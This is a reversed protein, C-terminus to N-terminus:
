LYQDQGDNTSSLNLSSKDGCEIQQGEVLLPGVHHVDQSLGMRSYHGRCEVRSSNMNLTLGTLTLTGRRTSTNFTQAANIHPLQDVRTGNLAWEVDICPEEPEGAPPCFWGFSVTGGVEHVTHYCHIIVRVFQICMIITVHMIAYSVDHMCILVYWVMHRLFFKM